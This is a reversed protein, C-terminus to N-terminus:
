NQFRRMMAETVVAARGAGLLLMARPGNAPFTQEQMKKGAKADIALVPFTRRFFGHYLMSAGAQLRGLSPIWALEKGARRSLWDLDVDPLAEDPYLLLTASTARALWREAGKRPLPFEWLQKGNERNLAIAADRTMLVYAHGDLSSAALDVANRGLFVPALMTEGNDINLRRLESGYNRDVVILLHSGERRLQPAAGTLSPVGDLEHSWRDRGNALELAVIRDNTSYAAHRADIAVPPGPWLASATRRHLIRGDHAALTLCEGGSTQVLLHDAGALYHENIRSEDGPTRFQWLVDGTEIDLAFYARGPWAFRRFDRRRSGRSKGDCTRPRSRPQRLSRTLFSSSGNPWAM